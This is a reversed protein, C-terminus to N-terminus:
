FKYVFGVYFGYAKPGTLRYFAIKDDGQKGNTVDFGNNTLSHVAIDIFTNETLNVTCGLSFDWTAKNLISTVSGLDAFLSEEALDMNFTASTNKLETQTKASELRYVKINGLNKRVGIGLGVYPSLRSYNFFHYRGSVLIALASAKGSTYYYWDKETVVDDTTTTATVIVGSYIDKKGTYSVGAELTFNNWKYGLTGVVGLARDKEWLQTEDPNSDGVVKLREAERLSADDFALTIEPYGLQVDIYTFNSQKPWARDVRGEFEKEEETTCKEENIIDHFGSDSANGFQETGDSYSACHEAYCQLGALLAPALFFLKNQFNLSM